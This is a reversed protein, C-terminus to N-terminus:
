LPRIGNNPQPQECPVGKGFQDLIQTPQGKNGIVFKYGAICREEVMGNVGMSFNTNGQSTGMVVPAIIAALIGLIGVVIMMEILTFGKTKNM